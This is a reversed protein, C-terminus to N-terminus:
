NRKSPCPRKEETLGSALEHEFRGVLRAWRFDRDARTRGAAGMKRAEDPNSLLFCIKEAVDSSSYPDVLIGTVGDVIAEPAGGSHGGVVPKGSAGAELFVIGFGESDGEITRNPMVFVDGAQFFALIKNDSVSGLFRVHSKVEQEEAIQKLNEGHKGEGGILYLIDPHKKLIEPLARIVTDQGKREDLRGVTYLLRKGGVDLESLIASTDVNFFFKDEVGPYAVIAGTEKGLFGDMRNRTCHSNCILLDVRNLLWRKLANSKLQGTPIDEGHSILAIPISLLTKLLSIAYLYFFETKGFLILDIREEKSLKYISSCFRLLMAPEKVCSLVGLNDAFVAKRYIKQKRSALATDVDTCRPDANTDCLVVVSGPQLNMVTNFAYKQVGGISPPFADDVWLIRV